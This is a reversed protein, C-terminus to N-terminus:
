PAFWLKLAFLIVTLTVVGRVWRHGKLVTLHVGVQGGALTGLGLSLGADWAIKHAAWFLGLSALTFVLACFVKVANARVLDIGAVSLVALMLFGGGAQVFGGYFGVGVFAAALLVRHRLRDLRDREPPTGRGLPDWVTWVTVVIMLIALIRTFAADSIALAAWSGLLAGAASPIATWVLISRPLVGHRNFGWVAGVNQLVIGIRNTANAVGAPLGLFILLPITIFSGGGAIVNVTGAVVGAGFLIGHDLWTSM